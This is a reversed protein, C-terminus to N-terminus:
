DIVNNEINTNTMEAPKFATATPSSPLFRLYSNKGFFAAPFQNNARFLRLVRRFFPNNKEITRRKDYM